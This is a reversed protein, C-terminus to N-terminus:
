GKPQREVGVRGGRTQNVAGRRGNELPGQGVDLHPRRIRPARSRSGVEGDGDGLWGHRRDGTRQRGGGGVVLLEIDGTQQAVFTGPSTFSVVNATTSLGVPFQYGQPRVSEGTFQGGSLGTARRITM